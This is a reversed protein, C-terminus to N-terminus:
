IAEAQEAAVTAMHERERVLTDTAERFRRASLDEVLSQLRKSVNLPRAEGEEEDLQRLLKLITTKCGTNGLAIRVAARAIM